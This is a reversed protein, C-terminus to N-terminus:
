LGSFRWCMEKQVVDLAQCTTIAVAPLFFYCSSLELSEPGYITVKEREWM